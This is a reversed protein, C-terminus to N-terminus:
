EKSALPILDGSGIPLKRPRDADDPSMAMQTPARLPPAEGSTTMLLMTLEGSYKAFAPEVSVPKTVCSYGSRSARLASVCPSLLQTCNRDVPSAFARNGM